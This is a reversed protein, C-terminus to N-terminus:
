GKYFEADSGFEGAQGVLPKAPKIGVEAYLDAPIGIDVIDVKRSYMAGPPTFLGPKGCSFTVTLDAKVACGMIEGTDGNVGSPFDCSVVMCNENRRENIMEVIDAFIGMLDRALGFGFLADIICGCGDVWARVDDTIETLDELAGGVAVLREENARCDGTMKERNGSLFCRVEYGRSRLLRAAAVGDGGNNGQSCFIAVRKELKNKEVLECAKEVVHTAANEMLELSPIGREEIARRDLEKMQTTTAIYFPKM